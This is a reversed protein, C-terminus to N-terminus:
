ASLAAAPPVTSLAFHHNRWWGCPKGGRAMGWFGPVPLPFILIFLASLNMAVVLFFFGEFAFFGVCALCIRLTQSGGVCKDDYALFM